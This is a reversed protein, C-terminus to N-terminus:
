ARRAGHAQIVVVDENELAVATLVGSRYAGTDIGIRNPQVVPEPSISHGHVIVAGHEACSDLFTQRIWLHDHDTQAALPVGPRVGAHVFRYGGEDHYPKLSRIFALQDDPLRAAFDRRLAELSAADRADRDPIIVGYSALADMGDYDFWYAGCDLAGALYALMLDEHNGRLAVIEFGEPRWTRVREIVGCSHEGRCLYDGLYVLVRRKAARLCADAVIREQLLILLDLRGHIDGIAYM